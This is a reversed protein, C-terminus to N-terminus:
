RRARVGRRADHPQLDRDPRQDGPRAHEVRRAVGDPRAVGVHGQLSRDARGAPVPLGDRACVALRRDAGASAHCAGHGPRGLASPARRARGALLTARAHRARRARASLDRAGRGPGAALPRDRRLDAERARARLRADARGLTAHVPVPEDLLRDVGHDAVLALVWFSVRLTATLIRFLRERGLLPAGGLSIKEGHADALAKLRVRLRRGARTSGGCSPLSCSAGRGAHIGVAKLMFTLSRAQAPRTSRRRSRPRSTRRPRGPASTTACSPFRRRAM